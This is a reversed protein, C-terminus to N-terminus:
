FAVSQALTVVCVLSYLINAFLLIKRTKQLQGKKRLTELLFFIFVLTVLKSFYISGVGNQRIFLNLIPNVEVAGKALNIQTIIGDLFCFIAFLAVGLYHQQIEKELNNWKQDCVMLQEIM